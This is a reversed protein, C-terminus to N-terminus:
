GQGGLWVEQKEPAWFVELIQTELLSRRLLDLRLSEKIEKKKFTNPKSGTQAVFRYEAIQYYRNLIKAPLRRSDKRLSFAIFEGFRFSEPKFETSYIDFFNVWGQSSDEPSKEIDVFAKQTLSEILYEDTLDEPEQTLRYRSLTLGGKIFGM